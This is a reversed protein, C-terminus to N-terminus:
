LYELTRGGLGYVKSQTKLIKCIEKEKKRKKEGRDAASPPVYMSDACQNNVTGGIFRGSMDRVTGFIAVTIQEIMGSGPQCALTLDGGESVTGGLVGGPCTAPSPGAVPTISM